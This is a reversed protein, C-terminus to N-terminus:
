AEEKTLTKIVIQIQELLAQIHAGDLLRHNLEMSLPLRCREGEWVYKGWLIRPFSDDPSLPREQTVATFSVWPVSSFLILDDRQGEDAQIGSAAKEAALARACFASLGEGPIYETTMIGFVGNQRAVTYSPSAFDVRYVGDPRIRMLFAPVANVARTCVYLMARYFSLGKAKCLRVLETVDVTFTVAYFPNSMPSFFDFIPKRPWSEWPINRQQM